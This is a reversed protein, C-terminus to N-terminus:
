YFGLLFTLFIMKIVNLSDIKNPIFAQTEVGVFVPLVMWVNVRFVKEIFYEEICKRDKGFTKKTGISLVSCRFGRKELGSLWSM